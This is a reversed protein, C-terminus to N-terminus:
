LFIVVATMGSGQFCRYLEYTRLSVVCLTCAGEADERYRPAMQRVGRALRMSDSRSRSHIRCSKLLITGTQTRLIYLVVGWYTAEPILCSNYWIWAGVRSHGKPSVLVFVGQMTVDSRRIGVQLQLGTHQVTKSTTALSRYGM